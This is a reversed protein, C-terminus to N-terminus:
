LGHRYMILLQSIDCSRGGLSPPTMMVAAVALLALSARELQLRDFCEWLTAWLAQLLSPLFVGSSLPLAPDVVGSRPQTILGQSYLSNVGSESFFQRWFGKWSRLSPPVLFLSLTTTSRYFYLCICDGSINAWSNSINGTILLNIITLWILEAFQNCSIHFSDKPQRSIFLRYTSILSDSALARKQILLSPLRLLRSPLFVIM